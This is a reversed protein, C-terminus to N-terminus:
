EGTVIYHRQIVTDENSLKECCIKINYYFCNYPCTTYHILSFLFLDIPLVFARTTVDVTFGQRKKTATERKVHSNKCMFALPDSGILRRVWGTELTYFICEHFDRTKAMKREENHSSNNDDQCGPVFLTIIGRGM